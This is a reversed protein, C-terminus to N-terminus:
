LSRLCEQFYENNIIDCDQFYGEIDFNLKKDNGRIYYVMRFAYNIIKKLERNDIMSIDMYALNNFNKDIVYKMFLYNNSLHIPYKNKILFDDNNFEYNKNNIAKIFYTIIINPNDLDFFNIYKVLNHNNKFLYKFMKENKILNSNVYNDELLLSKINFKKKSLSIKELYIEILENSLDQDVVESYKLNHINKKVSYLMFNYNQYFLNKFLYDNVNFNNQENKELINVINNIIKDITIDTLNHWDIYKINDLNNKIFPMIFNYDKILHNFLIKNQLLININLNNKVIATTLKQKDTPTLNNLIKEDIYTINDLENEILYLIFNINKSLITPLENKNNLFLNKNYPNTKAIDIAYEILERQALAQEENYTMYKVNYYNQSILYKMFNINSSLRRPLEDPYIFLNDIDLKESILNELVNDIIKNIKEKSLNFKDILRLNYINHDLIKLDFYYSNFFTIEEGNHYYFSNKNNFYYDINFNKDLTNFYKDLVQRQIKPKLKFFNETHLSLNIPEKIINYKLIFLFSKIM